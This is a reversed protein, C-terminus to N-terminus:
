DVYVVLENGHLTFAHVYCFIDADSENAFEGALRVRHGTSDEEYVRIM